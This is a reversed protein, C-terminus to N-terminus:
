VHPRNVRVLRGALGGAATLAAHIREAQGEVDPDQTCAVIGAHEPSARHLRFFDLRNLTLVARGAATAFALVAEDPVRRGANGAEASTLVDYGRRRLAEVVQRSFNEDAYLPCSV